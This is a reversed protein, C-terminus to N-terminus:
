FPITHGEAVELASALHSLNPKTTTAVVLRRSSMSWIILGKHEEMECRSAFPYSFQERTPESSFSTTIPKKIGQVKVFSSTFSKLGPLIWYLERNNLKLFSSSLIKMNM